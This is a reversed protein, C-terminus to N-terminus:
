CRYILSETIKDGSKDSLCWYPTEIFPMVFMYLFVVGFKIKSLYKHHIIYNAKAREDSRVKLKYAM